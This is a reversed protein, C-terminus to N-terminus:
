LATCLLTILPTCAYIHNWNSRSVRQYRFYYELEIKMLGKFLLEPWSVNNEQIRCRIRDFKFVDRGQSIFLLGM